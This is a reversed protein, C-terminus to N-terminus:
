GGLCAYKWVTRMDTAMAQSSETSALRILRFHPWWPAAPIGRYSSTKWNMANLYDMPHTLQWTSRRIVQVCSSAHWGDNFDNDFVYSIVEKLNISDFM